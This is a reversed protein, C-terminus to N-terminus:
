ARSGATRESASPWTIELMQQLAARASLFKTAAELKEQQALQLRAKAAQYEEEVESFHSMFNREM